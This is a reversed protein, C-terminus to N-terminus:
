PPCDKGPATCTAHACAYSVFRGLLQQQQLAWLGAVNACRAGAIDKCTEQIPTSQELRQRLEPALHGTFGEIHARLSGEALWELHHSPCLSEAYAQYDPMAEAAYKDIEAQGADSPSALLALGITALLVAGRM